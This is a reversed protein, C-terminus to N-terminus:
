CLKLECWMSQFTNKQKWNKRNNCKSRNWIKKAECDKFVKATNKNEVTQALFFLVFFKKWTVFRKVPRFPFEFLALRFGDCWDFLHKYVANKRPAKRFSRASFFCRFPLFYFLLWANKTARFFLSKRKWTQKLRFSAALCCCEWQKRACHRIRPHWNVSTKRTLSCPLSKMFINWTWTARQRRLQVCKKM